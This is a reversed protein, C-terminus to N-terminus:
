ERGGARVVDLCWMIEKVATDQVADTGSAGGLAKIKDELQKIVESYVEKYEALEASLRNVEECKELYISSFEHLQEPSVGIDEYKGLKTLAEYLMRVGPETEYRGNNYKTLREM